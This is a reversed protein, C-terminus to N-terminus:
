TCVESDRWIAFYNIILRVTNIKLKFKTTRASFFTDTNNGRWAAFIGIYVASELMLKLACIFCFFFTNGTNSCMYQMCDRSSKISMTLEVRMYHANRGNFLHCYRMQSFMSQVSIPAMLCFIYVIYYEVQSSSHGRLHTLVNALQGGAVFKHKKKEDM